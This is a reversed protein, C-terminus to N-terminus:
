LNGPSFLSGQSTWPTPSFAAAEAVCSHLGMEWPMCLLSWDAGPGSGQAGLLQMSRDRAMSPPLDLQTCWLSRRLLPVSIRQFCPLSFGSWIHPEKSSGLKEPCQPVSPPQADTRPPVKLAIDEEVHAEPASPQLSPASLAPVSVMGWHFQTPLLTGNILTITAKTPVGLYLNSLEVQSSQLYVHPEQIEAYVPLYSPCLSIFPMSILFSSIFGDRNASSM